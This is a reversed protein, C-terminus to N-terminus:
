LQQLTGQKCYFYYSLYQVMRLFLCGAQEVFILKEQPTPMRGAGSLSISFPAIYFNSCNKKGGSIEIKL